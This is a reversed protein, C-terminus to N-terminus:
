RAIAWRGASGGALALLGALALVWLLLGTFPLDDVLPGLDASGTSTGGPIGSTPSGPTGPTTSGPAPDEALEGRPNRSVGTEVGAGPGDGAGTTADNGPM